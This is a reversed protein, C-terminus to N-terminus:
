DTEASLGRALALKSKPAIIRAVIMAVVLDRERGHRACIIKDLELRRLTGLTAAVHGHPLSRVIEFEPSSAQAITGGHLLQRLGEVVPAPWHTMNALTKKHVKKGE